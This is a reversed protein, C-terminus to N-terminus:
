SMPYINHGSSRFSCSFPSNIVLLHITYNTSLAQCYSYGENSSNPWGTTVQLPLIWSLLCGVKRRGELRRCNIETASCEQFSFVFSDVSVSLLTLSCRRGVGGSGRTDARSERGVCPVFYHLTSQLDLPAFSFIRDQYICFNTSSAETVVSSFCTPSIYPSPLLYPSLQYLFRFPHDMNHLTLARPLM